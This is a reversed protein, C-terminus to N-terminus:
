VEKFFGGVKTAIAMVLTIPIFWWANSLPEGLEIGGMIGLILVLGICFLTKCIRRKM